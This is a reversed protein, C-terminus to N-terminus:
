TTVTPLHQPALLWKWGPSPNSGTHEWSSVLKRLSEMSSWPTRHPCLSAGTLHLYLGSGKPCVPCLLSGPSGCGGGERSCPHEWCMAPPSCCRWGQIQGSSTHVTGSLGQSALGAGFRPGGCCQFTLVLTPTLVWPFTSLGPQPSWPEWHSRPDGEWVWGPCSQCCCGRSAGLAVLWWRLLARCPSM